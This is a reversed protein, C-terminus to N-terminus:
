QVHKVNRIENKNGGPFTERQRSIFDVSRKGNNPANAYNRFAITQETKDTQKDTQGNAYFM